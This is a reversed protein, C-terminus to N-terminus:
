VNIWFDNFLWSHAVSRKRTGQEVSFWKSLMGYLRICADNEDLVVKIENLLWSKHRWKHFVPWLDLGNIENYMKVLNVLLYINNSEYTQWHAISSCFKIWISMAWHLSPSCKRSKIATTVQKISEWSYKVLYDRDLRAFM